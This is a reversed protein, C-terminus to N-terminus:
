FNSAPRVRIPILFAVEEGGPYNGPLPPLPNSREVMALISKDLIDHGTSKELAYYRVEGRRSIQLRLIAEGSLRNARAAAPYSRHKHLWLILLEKYGKIITQEADPANGLAEGRVAASGSQSAAPTNRESPPAQATSAPPSYSEKNEQAAAKKSASAEPRTTAPPLAPAAFGNEGIDKLAAPATPPSSVPEQQASNRQAPAVPAGSSEMKGASGAHIQGPIPQREALAGSAPREQSGIKVRLTKFPLEQMMPRGIWLIVALLLIHLLAALLLSRSFYPEQMSTATAM